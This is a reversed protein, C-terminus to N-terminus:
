GRRYTEISYLICYSGIKHIGFGLIIPTWLGVYLATTRDGFVFIYASLAFAAGATIFVLIDFLRFM